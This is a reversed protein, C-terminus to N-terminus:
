YWVRKGDVLKWHKGLKSEAIKRRTEESETKGYNPNNAGRASESIKRKTEESLPRGRGKELNKLGNLHLRAHEEKPMPILDDPNWEIYRDLNNHRLSEDKHHLVWGKPLNFYQVARYHNRRSIKEQEKTM